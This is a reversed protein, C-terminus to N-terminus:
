KEMAEKITRWVIRAETIEEKEELSLKDINCKVLKFKDDFVSINGCKLCLSIDGKNPKIDETPHAVRDSFYGCYPCINKLHTEKGIM